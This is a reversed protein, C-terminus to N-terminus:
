KPQISQTVLQPLYSHQHNIKPQISQTVIKPTNKAQLIINILDDASARLKPDPQLAWILIQHIEGRAETSIEIQGSKLKKLLKTENKETWPFTGFCLAHLTIGFAWIDAKSGDYINNSIIEPAMYAPTGCFTKMTTCKERSLGFDTLKLNFDQDFLINEPKVDRHSIGRHHLYQLASLIQYAFNLQEDKSFFTGMSIQMQLDGNPLYEMVILIIDPEYIIEHVKIINQHEFRASLRLENELYVICGDEQAKQRNCIKIAVDEQTVTNIAHVVASFSGKGITKLIKYKQIRGPIRVNDMVSAENTQEDYM